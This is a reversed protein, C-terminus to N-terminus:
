QSHRGCAIEKSRPIRIWANALVADPSALWGLQGNLEALFPTRIRTRVAPHHTGHRSNQDGAEM